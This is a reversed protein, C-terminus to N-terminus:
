RGEQQETQPHAGRAKSLAAEIKAKLDAVGVFGCNAISADDGGGTYIIETNFAAELAEYLDPAAAILHANPETGADSAMFAIRHEGNQDWCIHRNWEYGERDDEVVFWPGPTFSERM